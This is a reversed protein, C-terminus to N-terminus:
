SGEISIYKKTINNSQKLACYSSFKIENIQFMQDVLGFDIHKEYIKVLADKLIKNEAKLIENEIRDDSWSDCVYVYIESM